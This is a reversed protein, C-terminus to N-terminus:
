LKLGIELSATREDGLALGFQLIASTGIGDTRDMSSDTGPVDDAVTEVSRSGPFATSIPADRASLREGRGLARWVVTELMSSSSEVRHHSESDLTDANGRNSPDLSNGPVGDSSPKLMCGVHATAEVLAPQGAEDDLLELGIFNAGEDAALRPWRLDEDGDLHPRPEPRRRHGSSSAVSVRESKQAVDRVAHIDLTKGQDDGVSEIEVLLDDTADKTGRSEVALHELRSSVIADNLDFSSLPHACRPPECFPEVVGLVRRCQVRRENFPHIQGDALARGIQRPSREGMRARLFLEFFM